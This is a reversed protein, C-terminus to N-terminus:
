GGDGGCTRPQSLYDYHPGEPGGWLLRNIGVPFISSRAKTVPATHVAKALAPGFTGVEAWPFTALGIVPSPRGFGAGLTVRLQPSSGAPRLHPVDAPSSTSGFSPLM